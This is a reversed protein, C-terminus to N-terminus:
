ARLLRVKEYGVRQQVPDTVTAGRCAELNHGPCLIAEREFCGFLVGAPVCASQTLKRSTLKSAFM